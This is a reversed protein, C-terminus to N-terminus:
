RSRAWRDSRTPPRPSFCKPARFMPSRRCTTTASNRISRSPWERRDGNGRLAGRRAGAGRRGRDPRPVADPQRRPRRRGGAREEPDQDRRHGQEGRRSFGARQLRGLAAHGGFHRQRQSHQGRRAALQLSPFPSASSRRLDVMENDLVCAGVDSGHREAAFARSALPSSSRRPRDDRTGAVFIGASGYAGTDHGGHATDSQKLVIRDVTTALATAAIQRHVTATGNGFEATGVTLEFGGDDRLAIM